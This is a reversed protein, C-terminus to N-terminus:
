LRERIKRFHLKLISKGHKFPVCINQDSKIEIHIDTIHSKTVPVYHPRDYRHTVFGTNGGSIDIIRLLPVCYDGVPQHRIIDCYVYLHYFGGNIDAPYQLYHKDGPEQPDVIVLAAGAVGLVRALGRTLTLMLRKGVGAIYVKNQIRDYNFTLVPAMVANLEQLLHPIDDYYGARIHVSRPYSELEEYFIKTDEDQITHFTRPYSIECLGAEWEGELRLEPTIHTRFDSITNHPYAAVSSNSPLTLFFDNDQDM